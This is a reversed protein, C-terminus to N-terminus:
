GSNNYNSRHIRKLGITSKKNIPHVLIHQMYIWLEIKNAASPNSSLAEHMSAPARLVQAVGGAGCNM